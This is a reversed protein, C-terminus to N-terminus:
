IGFLLVVMLAIIVVLVIICIIKGVDGGVSMLKEMKHATRKLLNSTQDVEHEFEELEKNQSELEEGLESAIAYIRNTAELAQDIGKDQERKIEEQQLM